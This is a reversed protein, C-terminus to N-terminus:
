VTLQCGVLFNAQISQLQWFSHLGQFKFFLPMREMASNILAISNLTDTVTVSDKPVLDRVWKATTKVRSNPSLDMIM